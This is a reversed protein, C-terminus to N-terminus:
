FTAIKQLLILLKVSRLVEFFIIEFDINRRSAKEFVPVHIRLRWERSCKHASRLINPWFSIFTGNRNVCIRTRFKPLHEFFRLSFLIFHQLHFNWTFICRKRGICSVHFLLSLLKRALVGHWPTHFRVWGQSEVRFVFLHVGCGSHDCHLVLASLLQSFSGAVFSFSHVWM